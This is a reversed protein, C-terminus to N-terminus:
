PGGSSSRFFEEIESFRSITHAPVIMKKSTAREREVDADTWHSVKRLLHYEDRHQVVGYEALVDIVRADQAMAVDKMLSDGLYVCEAPSRGVDRIIDLLVEPNPKRVGKPLYRHQAHLLRADSNQLLAGSQRGASAPIEHDPPSYVFDILEDLELTRIRYNTYYALSETYVVISVGSSKLNALTELVGDYLKLSAKRARRYAHIADDFLDVLNQGGFKEKLAPLDEILFAYESTNHRQHIERIQPILENEDIVSIRVIEKLMAGFSEHWMVFWDYLTNDFDTILTTAHAIDNTM